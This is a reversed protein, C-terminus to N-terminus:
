LVKYESDTKSPRYRNKMPEEVREESTTEATEDCQTEAKEVTTLCNSSIRYLCGQHEVVYRSGLPREGIVTAPGMWQNEHDGKYYVRDGGNSHRKVRNVKHRLAKSIRNDRLDLNSNKRM